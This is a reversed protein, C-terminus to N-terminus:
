KIKKQKNIDIRCKEISLVSPYKIDMNDILFLSTASLWSWNVVYLTKKFDKNKGEVDTYKATLFLQHLRSKNVHKIDPSTWPSNVHPTLACTFRRLLLQKALSQDTKMAHQNPALCHFNNWVTKFGCIKAVPSLFFLFFFLRRRFSACVLAFKQM